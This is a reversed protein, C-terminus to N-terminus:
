ARVRLNEPDIFHPSVIEVEAIENVLPSAAHMRTGKREGADRLMALGIWSELEVSRTVSTVWGLSATSGPEVLHAGARLMQEPRVPKIGVLHPRTPDTLGTRDKLARGIYDGRKKLMRGLGLDDATTQGNLEPGAVHGKEIRLLGLAEVGYPTIGFKEGAQLVANWVAEACGAPTAIEYALEGSFSIRFVRVPHGAVEADAVAMFPFADNSLDLGSVCGLLADRAKPGAISMSAWQDTVSALQVDLEPWCTQLHFEMHALVAAANATTTTMFFHDDALRTTTGDDFVIGDERLMIGYRARGIPLTSFTNAYLRDLLIAADHGQVEIKGLTSVDCIGVAKRVARGERLVSAWADADSGIPYYAPRLWEGTEMFVVGRRTHWAHLATRRIPAFDLGIHPGAIAGLAVPSTFPRFTPMGVDQVREGRAEALVAAGVLGGTKGQDTGMTHTTYRKAHEIHRYGERHALRIDDVTVDDQIDVFKKGPAKVEWFPLTAADRSAGQPIPIEETATFGADAAAAAGSCAGDAAAAAIGTHGAAAGASHQPLVPKGPVWTALREDWLLPTLGQNTLHVAPNIGGSICLLDAAVFTVPGGGRQRIEAAHLEKGGHTDCIESNLWVAIGRERAAAAGASEARPDVAGAIAMGSDQLAFLSDYALDNNAFLLTRRGPLVGFRAAYTQAAGALMVGPRDNGPFAILREHAGTAFVISRARITWYRQRPTHPPPAPLHDAVREIAGVVNHDYCGFVNTRAMLVMEPMARLAAVTEELWAAHAPDVLLGGGFAFDQECLIVRAGSAGAARAAALGAAGSGVVLVDCHAHAAEYQDPDAVASARGLGASRRILPEYLKEWFAAPWMFTKYYFGAAMVPAFLSNLAGIDFRLSPYRNQSTAELGDFLEITTARTNPERRSGSRLEVLANPEEPGATFVGRPRHYKFSRGVLRVGNALLASALTDGPHGELDRGDFRFRLKTGRDIHGGSARRFQQMM